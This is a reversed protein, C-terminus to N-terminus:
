DDEFNERNDTWNYDGKAERLDAKESTKYMGSIRFGADESRNLYEYGFDLSSTRFNGVSGSIQGTNSTKPKRTIINIIGSVANTGYLASSPGYVVEIRETNALDFQAGGYFGGSNLENIQIGDILLLILNNQNPIGRLFSYTNFGNINRFQFGPLDALAQELTFYGRERIQEASIVRVTTPTERLNQSIKAATTVKVDMLETLSMKLLDDVVITDKNQSIASFINVFILFTFLAPRSYSPNGRTNWIVDM